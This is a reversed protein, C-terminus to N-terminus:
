PKPPQPLLDASAREYLFQYLPQTPGGEAREINREFVVDGKRSAKVPYFTAAAFAYHWARGDKGQRAELILYAEPDTTLVYAFLAGDMLETGTQSYRVLPKSLPRLEQWSKREFNDEVLFEDCIARMQARRGVATQAPVPAGVLPRFEVGAKTPTWLRGGKLKGTLPQPSLSSMEHVWNGKLNLSVQAAVVPRGQKDMWLFISGDQARGVPNSFRLVPEASLRYVIEPDNAPGLQYDRVSQKMFSLRAASPEVPEGLLSAPVAPQFFSTAPDVRDVGRAAYGSVGQGVVETDGSAVHEADSVSDPQARVPVCLMVGVGAAVLAMAFWSARPNVKLNAIMEFRRKLTSIDGFGTVLASRLPTVTQLFELAEFLTEAYCRRSVTESSLVLGDSCLGIKGLQFGEPAEAAGGAVSTVWGFPRNCRNKGWFRRRYGARRPGLGACWVSRRSEDGSIQRLPAGRVCPSSTRAAKDRAASRV